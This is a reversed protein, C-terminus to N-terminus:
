QAVSDNERRQRRRDVYKMSTSKRNDNPNNQDVDRLM